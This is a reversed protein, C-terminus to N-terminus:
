GRFGLTASDGLYSEAPVRHPNIRSAATVRRTVERLRTGAQAFGSRRLCPPVKHFHLVHHWLIQQVERKTFDEMFWEIGVFGANCPKPHTGPSDPLAVPPNMRKQISPFRSVKVSLTHTRCLIEVRSVRPKDSPLSNM